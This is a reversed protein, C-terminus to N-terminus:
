GFCNSAGGVKPQALEDKRTAGTLRGTAERATFERKMWVFGEEEAALKCGDRLAAMTRVPAAVTSVIVTPATLANHPLALIKRKLQRPYVIAM